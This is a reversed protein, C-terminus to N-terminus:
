EVPQTKRDRVRQIARGFFLGAVLADAGFGIIPVVRVTAGIMSIAWLVGVALWVVGILVLVFSSKERVM